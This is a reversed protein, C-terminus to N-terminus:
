RGSLRQPLAMSRAIRRVTQVAPLLIGALLGIIAIVALLEVLTM